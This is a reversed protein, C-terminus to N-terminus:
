GSTARSPPVFRGDYPPYAEPDPLEGLAVASHLDRAIRDIVDRLEVQELWRLPMAGAGLMAGLVNGTIAGTSDSDGAHAVSRWLARAVADQSTGEVSLACALAIALAEEGVWGGGLSEVGDVPPPTGALGVARAAALAQALEEHGAEGVLLDDAARMAEPLPAGRVLDFVLSALYAGSLYGSPHGHTLAGADRAARFAEQRTSGALGFPASRMVAGCGKSGNPPNTVSCLDDVMFSRAIASMCTNGPARRAHMRCEALLWGQGRPPSWNANRSLAQTGHWRQYAGLAFPAWANSRASRARLIAEATFLTMQTDDSVPALAGNVGAGPIDRPPVTGFREAITVAPKVFELPYGLADGLAGGLLCGHLRELEIMMTVM